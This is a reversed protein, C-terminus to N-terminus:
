QRNGVVGGFPEVPDDICCILLARDREARIQVRGAEILQHGFRQGGGGDVPQQVVGVDALGATVRDAKGLGEVAFSHHGQM